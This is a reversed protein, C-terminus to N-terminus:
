RLGSSHLAAFSASKLALQDIRSTRLLNERIGHVADPYQTTADAISCRRHAGTPAEGAYYTVGLTHIFHAISRDLWLSHAYSRTAFQKDHRLALLVGVFNRCRRCPPNSKQQHCQQSPCRGPRHSLAIVHQGRGFSCRLNQSVWIPQLRTVDIM